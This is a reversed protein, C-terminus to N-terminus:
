VLVALVLADYGSHSPHSATVSHYLSHTPPSLSIRWDKLLASIDLICCARSALSQPIFGECNESVLCAKSQHQSGGMSQATIVSFTTVAISTIECM